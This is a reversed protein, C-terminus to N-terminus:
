GIAIYLSQHFPQILQYLRREKTPMYSAHNMSKKM